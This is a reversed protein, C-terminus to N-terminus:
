SMEDSKEGEEEDEEFMEDLDKMVEEASFTEISGDKIGEVTGKIEDCKADQEEPSGMFSIEWLIAQIM